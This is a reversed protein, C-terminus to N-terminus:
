PLGAPAATWAAPALTADSAATGTSTTPAANANGGLAVAAAAFEDFLREHDNVDVEHLSVEIDPHAGVLEDRLAELRDKRRAALALHHGREAFLRAMGAGLGASAGTIWINRRM